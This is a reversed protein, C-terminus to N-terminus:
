TSSGGFGFRVLLFFAPYPAAGLTMSPAGKRAHFFGGTAAFWPRRHTLPRRAQRARGQFRSAMPPLSRPLVGGRDRRRERDGPPLPQLRGPSRGAHFDRGVLLDRRM